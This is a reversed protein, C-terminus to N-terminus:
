REPRAFIAAVDGDIAGFPDSLTRELDEAAGLKSTWRGTPLQRAAHTPLGSRAYVAVKGVGPEADAGATPAYGLAAYAALFAPLTEERRAGAPWYAADMPDPWWWRDTEGAAWALCNYRETASSTVTYGSGAPAPFAAELPNM